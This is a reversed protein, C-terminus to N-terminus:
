FLHFILLLSFQLVFQFLDYCTFGIIVLLHLLFLRSQQIKAKQSFFLIESANNAVDSM